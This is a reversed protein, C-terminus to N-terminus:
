KLTPAIPRDTSKTFLTARNTSQQFTSTRRTRLQVAVNSFNFGSTQRDRKFNCQVFWLSLSLCACSPSNLAANGALLVYRRTVHSVLRVRAGTPTVIFYLSKTTSWYFTRTNHQPQQVYLQFWVCLDLIHGPYYYKHLSTPSFQYRCSGIGDVWAHSMHFNTLM